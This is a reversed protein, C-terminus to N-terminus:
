MNKSAWIAFLQLLQDNSMTSKTFSKVVENKENKTVFSDNEFYVTENGNQMIKAGNPIYENNECIELLRSESFKYGPVSMLATRTVNIKDTTKM